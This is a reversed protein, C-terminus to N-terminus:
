KVKLVYGLLLGALLQTLSIFKHPGTEARKQCICTTHTEELGLCKVKLGNTTM